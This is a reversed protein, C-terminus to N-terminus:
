QNGELPTIEVPGVDVIKDISPRYIIVRSNKQYILLKDGTQTKKLFKTTIKSPDTITALAPDEDTPLLYHKSVLNIVTHVDNMNGAKKHTLTVVTIVTIALVAIVAVTLGLRRNFRHQPKPKQPVM